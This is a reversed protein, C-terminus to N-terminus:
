FYCESEIEGIKKTKNKKCKGCDGPSGTATYVTGDQKLCEVTNVTCTQTGSKGSKTSCPSSESRQGNTGSRRIDGPDCVARGPSSNGEKYNVTGNDIILTDYDLAIIGAFSELDEFDVHQANNYDYSYPCVLRGENYTHLYNDADLFFFPYHMDTIEQISAIPMSPWTDIDQPISGEEWTEAEQNLEDFAIKNEQDCAFLIMMLLIVKISNKMNRKIEHYTFEFSTLESM